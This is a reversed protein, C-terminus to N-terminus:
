LKLSAPAVSSSIQDTTANTLFSGPTESFSKLAQDADESCALGAEDALCHPHARQGAALETRPLGGIVLPQSRRLLWPQWCLGIGTVFTQPSASWLFVPSM